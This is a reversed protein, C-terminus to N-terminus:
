DDPFPGAPRGQKIKTAWTLFRSIQPLSPLDQPRDPRRGDSTVPTLRAVRNFEDRLRIWRRSRPEAREAIREELVQRVAYDIARNVKTADTVGHRFQAEPDRPPPVRRRALDPRLVAARLAEADAMDSRHYFFDARAERMRRRVADDFFHGTVVIVTLRGAPVTRRAHEVVAVGPFQDGDRRHDAADVVAVDAREWVHAGSLADDHGIAAVLEIRPDADLVCAMGYRNIEDDDVVVVRVPVRGPRKGPM